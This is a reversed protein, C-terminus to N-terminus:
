RARIDEGQKKASGGKYKKKGLNFPLYRHKMMHKIQRKMTLAFLICFYILLIPWFVPVDFISFFTMAMAVCVAKMCAYRVCACAACLNACLSQDASLEDHDGHRWVRQEQVDCRLQEVGRRRRLMARKMSRALPRAAATNGPTRRLPTRHAPQPYWFKFEPLRRMFPKFESDSDNLPLLPGEDGDGASLMDEDLPSLFGILLNLLFIGLGYTVIYFGQLYYVRIGYLLFLAALALWRPATHPTSKDLVVQFQTSASRYLRPLFPPDVAVHSHSPDM